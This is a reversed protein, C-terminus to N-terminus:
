TGRDRRLLRGARARRRERGWTHGRGEEIAFFQYSFDGERVLETDAEVATEEAFPAIEALEEDSVTQFLPISKLRSADM